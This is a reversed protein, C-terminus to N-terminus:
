RTALETLRGRLQELIAELAEAAAHAAATTIAAPGIQDVLETWDRHAAIVLELLPLLEAPSICADGALEDLWRAFTDPEVPVPDAVTPLTVVPALPVSM